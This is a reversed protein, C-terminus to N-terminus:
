GRVWGFVGLGGLVAWGAGMAVLVGRIEGSREIGENFGGVFPVKAKAKWFARNHLVAAADAIANLLPLAVVM